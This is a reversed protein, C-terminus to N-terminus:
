PIHGHFIGSIDDYKNIEILPPHKLGYPGYECKAEERKLGNYDFYMKQACVKTYM